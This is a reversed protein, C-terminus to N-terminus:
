EEKPKEDGDAPKDADAKDADGKDADKDMDKDGDEKPKATDGAKPGSHVAGPGTMGPAAAPPKTAPKTEEAGCGALFAGMGVLAVMMMLKKM